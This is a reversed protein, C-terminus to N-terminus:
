YVVTVSGHFETIEPKSCGKLKLIYFYTGTPYVKGNSDKGNWFENIQKTNFVVSGWRNFITLHYFDYDEADMKFEDNIGDNNPSFVNPLFNLLFNTPLNNYDMLISSSFACGSGDVFSVSYTTGNVVPNLLLSAGLTGEDWEYEFYGEPATLEMTKTTECYPTPVIQEDDDLKNLNLKFTKNFSCNVPYNMQVSVIQQDFPQNVLFTTQASGSLWQYSYNGFPAYLLLQATNECFNIEEFQDELPEVQNFTFCKIRSCGNQRLMEVCLTDNFNVVRNVSFSTAGDYWVYGSYLEDANLLVPINDECM